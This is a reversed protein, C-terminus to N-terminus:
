RSSSFSSTTITCNTNSNITVSISEDNPLQIKCPAATFWENVDQGDSYGFEIYATKDGQLNEAIFRNIATLLYPLQTQIGKVEYNNSPFQSHIKVSYYGTISSVQNIYLSGTPSTSALTLPNFSLLFATYFIPILKKM